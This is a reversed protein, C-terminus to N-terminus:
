RQVEQGALLRSREATPRTAFYIQMCITLMWFAGSPSGGQVRFARSGIQATAFFRGDEDRMVCCRIRLGQRVAYLYDFSKTQEKGLERNLQQLREPLVVPQTTRQARNFKNQPITINLM